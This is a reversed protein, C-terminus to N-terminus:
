KTAISHILISSFFNRQRGFQVKYQQSEAQCPAASVINACRSESQVTLNAVMEEATQPLRPGQKLPGDSDMYQWHKLYCSVVMQIQETRLKM